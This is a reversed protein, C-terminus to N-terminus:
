KSHSKSLASFFFCFFSDRSTNYLICVAAPFEDLKVEDEGGGADISMLSQTLASLRQLVLFFVGLNFRLGKRWLYENQRMLVLCSKFVDHFFSFNSTM